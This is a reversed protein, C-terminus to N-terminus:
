LQHSLISTLTYTSYVIRSHTSCTRTVHGYSADDICDSAIFLVGAGKLPSLAEEKGCVRVVCICGCVGEGLGHRGSLVSEGVQLVWVVTELRVDGLLDHFEMV